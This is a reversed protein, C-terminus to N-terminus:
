SIIYKKFSKEIISNDCSKICHIILSQRRVNYNFPNPLRWRWLKCGLETYNMDLDCIVSYTEYEM